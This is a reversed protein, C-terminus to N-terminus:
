AIDFPQESMEILKKLDMDILEFVLYLKGPELIFDKLEVVNQHRLHTLTTIERLATAPVGEEEGEFRIKKLAVGENKLTDLGRYVV